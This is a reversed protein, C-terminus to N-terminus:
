RRRRGFGIERFGGEEAAADATEQGGGFGTAGGEVEAAEDMAEIEPGGSGAEFRGEGEILQCTFM